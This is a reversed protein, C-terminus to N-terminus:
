GFSGCSQWCVFVALLRSRREKSDLLNMLRWVKRQTRLRQEKSMQVTRSHQPLMSQWTPIARTLVTHLLNHVVMALCCRSASAGCSGRDDACPRNCDRKMFVDIKLAANYMALRTSELTARGTADYFEITPLAWNGNFVDCFENVAVETALDVVEVFRSQELLITNM